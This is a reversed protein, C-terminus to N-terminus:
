WPTSRSHRRQPQMPASGKYLAYMFLTLTPIGFVILLLVDTLINQHSFYHLAFSLAVAFFAGASLLVDPERYWPQYERGRSTQRLGRLGMFLLGLGLVLWLLITYFDLLMPSIANLVILALLALVICLLVIVRTTEMSRDPMTNM